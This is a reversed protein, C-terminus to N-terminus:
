IGYFATIYDPTNKSFIAVRDGPAIGKDRLSAALGSARRFLQAYTAVQDQGLFLAPRDGFRCATRELWHALNM